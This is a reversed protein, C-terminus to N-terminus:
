NFALRLELRLLPTGYIQAFHVNAKIGEVRFVTLTNSNVKVSNYHKVSFFYFDQRPCGQNILILLCISSARTQRCLKSCKLALFDLILISM